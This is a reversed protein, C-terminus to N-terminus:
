RKKSSVGRKPPWKQYYVWQYFMESYPTGQKEIIPKDVENYIRRRVERGNKRRDSVTAKPEHTQDHEPAAM